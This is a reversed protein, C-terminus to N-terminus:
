WWWWWQWWWQWWWSWWWWWWWWWWRWWWSWWSHKTLIWNHSSDVWMRIKYSETPDIRHSVSINEFLNTHSLLLSTLLSPNTKNTINVSEVMPNMVMKWWWTQIWKPFINQNKELWGGPLDLHKFPILPSSWMILDTTGFYLGMLKSWWGIVFSGKQVHLEYLNWGVWVWFHSAASELIQFLRTQSRWCQRGSSVSSPLYGAFCNIMLCRGWRRGLSGVQDGLHSTVLLRGQLPSKFRGFFSWQSSGLRKKNNEKKNIVKMLSNFFSWIYWSPCGPLCRHGSTLYSWVGGLFM